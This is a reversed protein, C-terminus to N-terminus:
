RPGEGVRPHKQACRKFFDFLVRCGDPGKRNTRRLYENGRPVCKKTQEGDKMVAQSVFVGRFSKLHVNNQGGGSRVVLRENREASKRTAPVFV